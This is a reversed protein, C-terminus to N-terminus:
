PYVGAILGAMVFSSSAIYELNGTGVIRQSAVEIKDGAEVAFRTFGTTTDRGALVNRHYGYGFTLDIPLFGSGSDLYLATQSNKRQGSAVGISVRWSVCATGGALFEIESSGPVHSILDSTSKVDQLPLPTVAAGVITVPVPGIGAEFLSGAPMFNINPQGYQLTM